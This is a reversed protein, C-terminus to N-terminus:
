FSKKFHLFLGSENEINFSYEIRFVIDYYTVLDLGAGYGMAVKNSFSNMENYLKDEVYGIDSYLNFYIAYHVTNFKEMPIFDFKKIRPQILTFKLNNKSLAYHQGDITYLEYGRVFDQFGLGRQHTYPPDNLLSLKGILANAYNIRSTVKGHKKLHLRISLINLKDSTLGLGSKFAHFQLHTGKLPYAINDRTDWNFTYGISFYRTNTEDNFLYVDSIKQLTDSIEVSNYNFSLKHSRYLKKRYSLFTSFFYSSRLDEETSKLFLRKNNESSYNVERNSSYGSILTLGLRKKKDLYPISYAIAFEKEFGMQTIFTLKENRGRFNFWQLNLGYSLRSFDKDQWWNNFNRDANEIVPFPWIYWREKVDIMIKIHEPSTQAWTLTVFNFLSTNILNQRSRELASEIRGYKISDGEQFALERLIIYDKTIKKEVITIENITYVSNSDAEQAFLNLQVFLVIISCCLFRM